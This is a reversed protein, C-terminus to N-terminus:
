GEPFEPRGEDDAPSLRKTSSAVESQDGQFPLWRYIGSRAPGVREFEPSKNMQKILYSQLNERRAQSLDVRILVDCVEGLRIIGGVAPAAVRLLNLKADKGTVHAAILAGQVRSTYDSITMPPGINEDSVDISLSPSLCVSTPLLDGGGQPPVGFESVRSFGEIAGERGEPPDVSHSLLAKELLDQSGEVAGLIERLFEADGRLDEIGQRVLVRLDDGFM